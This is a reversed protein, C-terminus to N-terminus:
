EQNAWDYKLFEEEPVEWEGIMIYPQGLDVLNVDKFEVFNGIETNSVGFGFIGALSTIYEDAKWTTHAGSLTFWDIQRKM